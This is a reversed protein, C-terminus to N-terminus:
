YTPVPLITLPFSASYFLLYVHYSFATFANSIACHVNRSYVDVELM